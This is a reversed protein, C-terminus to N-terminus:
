IVSWAIDGSELPGFELGDAGVFAIKPGICVGLSYGICLRPLKRAIIAGRSVRGTLRPLLADGICLFSKTNLGRLAARYQGHAGNLSSYGIYQDAFGQGTLAVHAGNVFTLCDHGGWSFPISRCKDIYEALASEWNPLRM